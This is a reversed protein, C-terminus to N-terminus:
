VFYGLALARIRAAKESRGLRKAILGVHEGEHIMTLLKEDEDPSWLVPRAAISLRKFKLRLIYCRTRIAADTRGLKQAIEGIAAGSAALERLKADEEPTWLNRPTGVM